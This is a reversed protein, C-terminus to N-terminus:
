RGPQSIEERLNRAAVNQPDIVLAHEVAARAEEWKSESALTAALNIWGVVYSPSAAVAARFYSEARASDGKRAALYGMQSQAEALKPDLAIARQLEATEGALDDLRDLSKALKYHLVPEDPDDILAQRYVAAAEQFRGAAALSDGTAGQTAAHVKGSQTANLQQYIHLQDRAKAAEGERQLVKALHYHVEARDGGLAMAKRLHAEAGTLDGLQELTSGLAQQSAFSDPRLEVSRTLFSRAKALDGAQSALVGNLYLAEWHDPHATLVKSAFSLADESHGSILARLYLLQTAQDDPHRLLAHEFVAYADQEKHQLMLVLALEDAIQLSDSATALGQRLVAVADDLRGMGALSVGLNFSQESSLRNEHWARELLAEVSAYSHRDLLDHSLADLAEESHADIALAKRYSAEAEASRKLRDLVSGLVLYPSVEGPDLQIARRLPTLAALDEGASSLSLGWRYAYMPSGPRRRSAQSFAQAACAFRRNDGYWNGLEAFNEASPKSAIRAKLEAPPTCAGVARLREPAGAFLVSAALSWALWVFRKSSSLYRMCEPSCFPALGENEPSNYPVM